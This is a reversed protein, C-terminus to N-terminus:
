AKKAPKKELFGLWKFCMPYLGVEVFMAVAYRLTRILYALANEAELMWSPFPLKLVTNLALFLGAGVVVRIISSIVNRTNEFHVFKEEFIDGVFFGLMMGLGTYYDNTKCYFWGACSVIFIVPYLKLKNPFKRLLWPMLFVICTGMAWGFIVDTPYHVGVCFRSIGVLIPMIICIIRVAKNKFFYAISGFAITSNTSHGSPFSYGQAKIDYISASSDVPRLCQISPNDMYPRRRLAINKALPNYTVGMVINLGIIRGVKKDWCWYVFGLLLVLVLEEGFMSIISAIKAGLEGLHSQIAEMLAVEWGFYFTNGM